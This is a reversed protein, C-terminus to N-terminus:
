INIRLYQKGPSELKINIETCAEHLSDTVPYDESSRYDEM